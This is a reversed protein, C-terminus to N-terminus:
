AAVLDSAQNLHEILKDLMLPWDSERFCVAAGKRPVPTFGLEQLGAASIQLPAIRRNIEGVNIVADDNAATPVPSTRIPTAAVPTFAVHAPAAAVATAAAVAPATTAQEATQQAKQAAAQDDLLKQRAAAEADERIKDEAAQVRAKETSIRNEAQAVFDDHPKLVLTSTDAFLHVYDKANERLWTMNAMIVKFKDDAQIKANALTTAVADTMNAFSRKNKICAGFDAPIVPMYDKGLLKNLGAIHEKFKAVGDAVIEAKRADKRASIAKDFAIRTQDLEAMIRDLTGVATNVDGTASMLNARVGQLTAKSTDCWRSAADANAFDEDTKLEHDRVNKIYALAAAEWEKINSELVLEGKVTSRIAPLLDPSHGVVKMPEAAAPVYEALDKEFQSWGAELRAFWAPDPLVEMYEMNEETGDSVVFIVREADTVLLIQQCQPMHEEPLQKARVAAALAENWQKHEMATDHFMTMGDTSASLKGRSCTVPGLEIGFIREIIPRAKAEVEHGHDLVNAQFWDSYERAIGTHKAHLLETRKVKTSLGLMAAAESAGRHILRFEDWEQSGQVLDHVIKEQQM